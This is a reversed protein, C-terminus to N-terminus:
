STGGFEIIATPSSFWELADALGGLFGPLRDARTLVLYLLVLALSGSIVGSATGTRTFVTRSAARRGKRAKKATKTGVKRARAVPAKKAPTRPRPASSTKAATRHQAAQRRRGIARAQPGTPAATVEDLWARDEDTLDPFAEDIPVNGQKAPDADLTPRRRSPAAKTYM